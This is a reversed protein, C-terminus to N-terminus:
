YGFPQSFNLVIMQISSWIKSVKLSQKRYNSPELNQTGPIQIWGIRWSIGYRTQYQNILNLYSLLLLYAIGGGGLDM